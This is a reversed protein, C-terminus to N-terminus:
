ECIMYVVDIGHEDAVLVGRVGERIRFWVGNELGMTAPIDVPYGHRDAWRREEITSLWTWSTCPLIKSQNRRCGWRVIRLQGEHWIPLVRNAHRALFRIEKEGGRDYVRSELQYQQILEAPLESYALAIGTCM